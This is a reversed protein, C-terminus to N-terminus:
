RCFTAALGDSLNFGSRAPVWPDRFWFQFNWSSGALIRGAEAPPDALRLPQLAGGSEDTRQPPHLRFLGLDGAGICLFGDGLFALTQEPGYCFLGIQSPVAGHVELILDDSAVSTSGSWGMTAPTGASGPESTCYNYPAPPGCVRVFVDRAENFDDPVLNRGLSPFAVACAASSLAHQTQDGDSGEGADNVSVRYTSHARRDRLFVDRQGETDDEVLNTAGSYFGIISGDPSITPGECAENAQRGESSVSVRTLGSSAGDWLVVDWTGNTDATVLNTANTTFAVFRGGDAVAADTSPGDGQVGDPRVSVRVTTGKRLDRLFVDTQGNTDGEVLNTASSYFVAFRGDRSLRPRDCGGNAEAGASSVTFRELRGTLRDVLFGDLDRNEDDEVLNDAASSFTVYRGDDSIQVDFCRDNAPEGAPSLSIMTTTPALRDRVYVSRAIPTLGPVLNTASSEFAVFRGGRSVSSLFSEGDGQEGTASVSVLTTEGTKLDHLLVDSLRNDDGEVLDDAFSRFTVCRGDQSVDVEVSEGGAEDGGSSVSARSTDCQGEAPRALMVGYLFILGVTVPTPAGTM